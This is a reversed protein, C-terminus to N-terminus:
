VFKCAEKGLVGLLTKWEGASTRTFHVLKRFVALSDEESPKKHASYSDPKSSLVNLKKDFILLPYALLLICEVDVYGFKKTGCFECKRGEKVEPYGFRACASLTKRASEVAVLETTHFYLNPFITLESIHIDLTNLQKAYSG